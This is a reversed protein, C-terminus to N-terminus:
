TSMQNLLITEQFHKRSTRRSPGTARAAPPALDEHRSPKAHPVIVLRYEDNARVTHGITGPVLVRTTILTLGCASGGRGLFRCRGIPGARLREAGATSRQVVGSLAPSSTDTLPIPWTSYPQDPRHSRQWDTILRSNMQMRKM